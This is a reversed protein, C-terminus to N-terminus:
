DPEGAVHRGQKLPTVVIDQRGVAQIGVASGLEIRENGVRERAKFAEIPVSNARQAPAELAFAVRYKAQGCAEILAEFGDGVRVADRQGRHTLPKRKLAKRGCGLRIPRLRGSKMSLEPPLEMADLSSDNLEGVVEMPRARQDFVEITPQAAIEEETPLETGTVEISQAKEEIVMGELATLLCLAHPFCRGFKQGALAMRMPELEEAERAKRARGLRALEGEQRGIM